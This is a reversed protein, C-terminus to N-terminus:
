KSRFRVEVKNWDKKELVTSGSWYYTWIQCFTSTRSGFYLHRLLSTTTSSDFIHFHDFYLFPRVSAYGIDGIRTPLTKYFKIYSKLVIRGNIKSLNRSSTVKENKQLFLSCHTVGFHGLKKLLFRQFVPVSQPCKGM